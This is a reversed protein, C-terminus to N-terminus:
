NTPLSSYFKGLDEGAAELDNLKQKLSEPNNGQAEAALAHHTLELRAISESLQTLQQTSAQERRVIGPLKMIQERRQEPDLTTNKRIFLTQQNIIFNYDRNEQDKLIAIDSVLLDCLTKVHPDMAVIIPPLEKKTKRNILFQGLANVATSIGNQVAPTIVPAPTSSTSSTTTTTSGSTTTDTTETTSAAASAIGLTSEISPGLSNGLNTLNEGASKEAAQLEPSDTGSTIAVVSQVYAQFAALVALRVQVDKASLLSQITRPNYVPTVADFQAVADYDLRINHIANANSYAAAAQDVVPATATALATAHKNLPSLCGTTLLSLSFCVVTAVCRLASARHYPLPGSTRVSGPNQKRQM